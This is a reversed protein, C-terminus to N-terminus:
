PTLGFVLHDRGTKVMEKPAPQVLLTQGCASAVRALMEITMGRKGGGVELRAILAQTVGMRKALDEQTLGSTKRLERIFQASELVVAHDDYARKVEPNKLLRERVQSFPVGGTKRAARKM